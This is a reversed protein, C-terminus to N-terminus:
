ILKLVEEVTNKVATPLEMQELVQLTKEVYQLTQNASLDNVSEIRELNVKNEKTLVLHKLWTENRLVERNGKKAENITELSSLNM